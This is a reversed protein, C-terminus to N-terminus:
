TDALEAAADMLAEIRERAAANVREAPLKLIGGADKDATWGVYRGLLHSFRGDPPETSRRKMMEWMVSTSEHLRGVDVESLIADQWAPRGGIEFTLRDIGPRFQLPTFLVPCVTFLNVILVPCVINIPSPMSLHFPPPIALFLLYPPVTVRFASM